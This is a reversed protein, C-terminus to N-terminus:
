YTLVGSALVGVVVAALLGAGFIVVEMLSHPGFPPRPRAPSTFVSM